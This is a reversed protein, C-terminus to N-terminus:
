PRQNLRRYYADIWDRYQPPLDGGGETRFLDRVHIPLDGWRESSDASGSGGGKEGEPPPQNEENRPDDSSERPSNPQGQKGPDDEPDTGGPEESPQPEQGPMEPTQEKQGQAGQLKQDLPSGEGEGGSPCEMTAQAGGMQQAIELIRDIGEVVEEAKATSHRLLQDIGSAEVELGIAEGASADFLLEDIERLREEVRHFLEVMEERGAQPDVSGISVPPPAPPGQEPDQGPLDAVLLAALGGALLPHHFPKM